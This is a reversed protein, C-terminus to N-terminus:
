FVQLLGDALETAHLHLNITYEPTTYRSQQKLVEIQLLKCAINRLNELIM